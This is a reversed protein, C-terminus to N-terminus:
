QAAEIASFDSSTDKAYLGIHSVKNLSEPLKQELRTTGVELIVVRKALDIIIHATFKEKSDFKAKQATGKGVNVWGGEFIEHTGKGIATGVKILDNNNPKDGFCFFANKTVVDVATQYDLKFVAKDTGSLAKDLKRLAVAEGQSSLRYGLDSKTVTGGL